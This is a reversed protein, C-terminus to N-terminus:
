EEEHIPEEIHDDGDKKVYIENYVDKFGSDPFIPGGCKELSKFYNM